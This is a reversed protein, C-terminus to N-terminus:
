DLHLMSVIFNYKQNKNEKCTDECPQEPPDPVHVEDLRRHQVGDHGQDACVQDREGVLVDLKYEFVLLFLSFLLETSWM